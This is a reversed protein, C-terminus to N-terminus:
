KASRCCWCSPLVFLSPPLIRVGRDIFYAVTGNSRWLGTLCGILVLVEAVILAEKIGPWAMQFIDKFSYGRVRSVIVLVILIGTVFYVM